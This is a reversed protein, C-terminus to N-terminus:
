NLELASKELEVQEGQLGARTFTPKARIYFQVRNM